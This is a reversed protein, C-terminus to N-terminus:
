AAQELRTYPFRRIGSHLLRTQVEGAFKTFRKILETDIDVDHKMRFTLYLAPDGTWDSGTEVHVEQLESMLKMSSILQQAQQKEALATDEAIDM